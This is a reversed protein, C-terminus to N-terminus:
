CCNQFKPQYVDTATCQFLFRWDRNTPSHLILSLPVALNGYSRVYGSTKKRQLMETIQGFYSLCKTMKRKRVKKSRISEIVKEIM